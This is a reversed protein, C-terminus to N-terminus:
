NIIKTKKDADGQARVPRSSLPGLSIIFKHNEQKQRWHPPIRPWPGDPRTYFLHLFFGFLFLPVLLGWALSRHM